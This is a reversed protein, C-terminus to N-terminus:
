IFTTGYVLACPSNIHFAADALIKNSTASNM